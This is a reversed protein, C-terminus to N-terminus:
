AYSFFNTRFWYLPQSMILLFNLSHDITFRRLSATRIGFRRFSSMYQADAVSLYEQELYYHWQQAVVVCDHMINAPTERRNGLRIPSLLYTMTDYGTFLAMITSSNGKKVDLLSKNQTPFYYEKKLQGLKRFQQFIIESTVKLLVVFNSQELSDVSGPRRQWTM